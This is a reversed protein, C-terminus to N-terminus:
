AEGESRRLRRARQWQIFAGEDPEGGLAEYYQIRDAMSLSEERCFFEPTQASMDYKECFVPDTFKRYYDNVLRIAADESHGYEGQLQRVVREFLWVLDEDESALNLQIAM